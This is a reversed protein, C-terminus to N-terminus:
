IGNLCQTRDVCARLNITTSGEKIAYTNLKYTKRISGYENISSSTTGQAKSGGLEDLTKLVVNSFSCFKNSSCLQMVGSGLAALAGSKGPDAVQEAPIPEVKFSAGYISLFMQWMDDYMSREFAEVVKASEEPTTSVPKVSLDCSMGMDNKVTQRTDNWSTTSKKFWGVKTEKGANRWYTQMRDVNISCSGNLPGPYSFYNYVLGLSQSFVKRDPKPEYSSEEVSWSVKLGDKDTYVRTRKVIKSYEGCRAGKSVYFNFAGARFVDKTATNMYLKKTGDLTTLPSSWNDKISNHLMTDAPYEITNAKFLPTGDDGAITINDITMGMNLRINFLDLERVQYGTKGAAALANSIASMEDSFVNYGVSVRGVLKQEEGNVVGTEISWASQSVSYQWALISRNFDFDKQLQDLRLVFADYKGKAETYPTFLEQKKGYLENLKSNVATLATNMRSVAALVCESMNAPNTSCLAVDVQYQTTISKKQDEFQSIDALVINWQLDLTKYNEVMASNQAEASNIQKRLAMIEAAVKASQFPIAQSIQFFNSVFDGRLLTAQMLDEPPLLYAQRRIDIFSSCDPGSSSLEAYQGQIEQINRPGVHLTKPSESDPIIKSVWSPTTVGLDPLPNGKRDDPLALAQLSSLLCCGIAAKRFIKYIQVDLM